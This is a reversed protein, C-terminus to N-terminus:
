FLKFVLFQDYHAIAILKMKINIEVALLHKKGHNVLIFEMRKINKFLNEFTNIWLLNQLLIYGSFSSIFEEKNLRFFYNFNRDKKLNKKIESFLIKSKAFKFDKFM